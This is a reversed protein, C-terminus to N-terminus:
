SAFPGLMVWSAPPENPNQVPPCSLKVGPCLIPLAMRVKGGLPDPSNQFEITAPIHKGVNQLQLCHSEVVLVWWM